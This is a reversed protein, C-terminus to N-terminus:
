DVRQPYCVYVSLTLESITFCVISTNSSFGDQFRFVYKFKVMREWGNESGKPNQWLERVTRTKRMNWRWFYFVDIGCWTCFLKVPFLSKSLGRHPHQHLQWKDFRKVTTQAADRDTDKYERQLEKPSDDNTGPNTKLVVAAAAVAVSHLKQKVKSLYKILSM